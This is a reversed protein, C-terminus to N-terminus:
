LHKDMLERDPGETQTRVDEWAVRHTEGDIRAPSTIHSTNHAAPKLLVTQLPISYCSFAPCTQHSDTCLSCICLPQSVCVTITNVYSFGPNNDNVLVSVM